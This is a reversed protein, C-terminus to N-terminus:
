PTDELWRQVDARQEAFESFGESLQLFREYDARAEDIQGRQEYSQARTFHAWIHQPDLEIARNSDLFAAEYDGRDINCGARWEWYDANQPDRQIAQAYDECAQDLQGKRHYAQARGAYHSPHPNLAITMSWDNIALELQDIDGYVSARETYYSAEQPNLEIAATWDKISLFPEGMWHYTRAREAYHGDAGPDLEIAKDLDDLAAQYNEQNANILGREVRYTPNLPDLQIAQSADDVAQELNCDGQHYAWSRCALARLYYLEASEIGQELAEDFYAYAEAYNGQELQSNGLLIIARESLASVAQTTSLTPQSTPGAAADPEAAQRGPLPIVDTALLVGLAAIIVIAGGLVWVWAPIQREEPSALKRKAKAQVKKRDPYRPDRARVENWKDLAQQYQGANLLRVAEAYLGALESQRQAEHEEKAVEDQAQAALGEPDAFDPDLAQIEGMKAQVQQWQQARALGLAQEYWIAVQEQQQCEAEQRELEARTESFLRETQRYGPEMENVQKLLQHAEVWHKADVEQVARNYLNDLEAQRELAAVQRQASALLEDPDPYAPESAHIQAFTNVVAQWQKAQHHQRAEAYLNALQKQKEATKLLAAAEKFEPAEALLVQLASIVTPWDAAKQAAQAQAYLAGLRQRQEVREQAQAALGECDAFQPDLAKIQAMIALVQQWQQTDALGLAQEYFANAQEQQQRQTEEHKIEAEVRALLRDAEGFGAELSLVQTLLQQAAQWNGSDIERVSRSYLDNLTAQRKQEDAAQQASSLLEDPDPYDPDIAHIKGFVNVVAQWQQAQHLRQAEDCLDALQKQKRALQLREASDKFDTAEASLEQLAVLAGAWDQAEQAAVAQAYLAHLKAQRGAEALKDAADEYYPRVDVITRFSHVAKEWEELWFASLGQTYLEALRRELAEDVEESPEPLPPLPVQQRQDETVQFIVGQPARMFLVPTGWEMTRAESLRIARRGEAVAADVSEGRALLPYFKQSFTIAADDSIPFQMAVVAPIGAMVMAAAVGAFPDLGKDKTVRATECANLFVLRMAPLDRLLVGLTSGDVMAGQGTEDEMLLVGQGTQEDFDGHGMYHLVHYPQEALRDQLALITAQEM